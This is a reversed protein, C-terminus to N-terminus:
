WGWAPGGTRPPRRRRRWSAIDGVLEAVFAHIARVRPRAHEAASTIACLAGTVLAGAALVGLVPAEALLLLTALIHRPKM